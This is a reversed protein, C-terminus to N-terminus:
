EIVEGEIVTSEDLVVTPDNPPSVTATVFPETVMGANGLRMDETSTQVFDILMRVATKLIMTEDWKDWIQGRSMAKVKAITRPTALAVKTAKGDRLVAYAYSMVPKADGSRAVWDIEHKPRDQSDDNPDWHFKGAQHEVDYVVEAVVKTYLGSRLIRQIMGKYSEAGQIKNSRITLYYDETGPIHGLRACDLLARMLAAPDTRAAREIEPKAKVAAEAMRLWTRQDVQSPMVKFFDESRSRIMAGPGASQQQAPANGSPEGQQQALANGILSM